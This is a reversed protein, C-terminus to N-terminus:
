VAAPGRLGFSGFRGQITNALELASELVVIVDGPCLDTGAADAMREFERLTLSLCEMMRLYAKLHTADSQTTPSKDARKTKAVRRQETLIM